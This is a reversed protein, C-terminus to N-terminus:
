GRPHFIGGVRKKLPPTKFDGKLLPPNLPIQNKVTFGAAVEKENGLKKENGLQVQSRM